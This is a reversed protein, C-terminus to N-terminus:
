RKGRKRSRYFEADSVVRRPPPVDRFKVINTPKTTVKRRAFYAASIIGALLMVLAGWVIM